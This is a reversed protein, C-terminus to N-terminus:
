TRLDPALYLDSKAIESFGRISSGDFMQGNELANQLQTAPIELSRFFGELDTFMLKIFYINAEEIDELIETLKM